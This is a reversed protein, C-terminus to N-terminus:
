SNGPVLKRHAAFLRFAFGHRWVGSIRAQKCTRAGGPLLDQRQRDRVAVNTCEIFVIEQGPRRQESREGHANCGGHRWGIGSRFSPTTDFFARGNGDIVGKGTISVNKKELVILLHKASWGEHISGWNQPYADPANYDALDPSGLLTAGEDLHLETDDGLYISGILYTGSPVVVKGGTKACADLACQVAATDKTAGDGKAGFSRVDYVAGLASMSVFALVACCRVKRRFENASGVPRDGCKMEKEKKM